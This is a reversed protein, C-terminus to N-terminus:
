TSEAENQYASGQKKLTISSPRQLSGEWEQVQQEDWSAEEWRCV